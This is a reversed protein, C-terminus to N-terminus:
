GNRKILEMRTDDLLRKLDEPSNPPRKLCAFSATEILILNGLNTKPIEHKLVELVKKPNLTAIGTYTLFEGMGAVESAPVDFIQKYRIEKKLENAETNVMRVAAKFDVKLYRLALFLFAYYVDATEDITVLDKAQQIISYDDKDDTSEM